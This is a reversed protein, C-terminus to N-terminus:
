LGFTKSAMFLSIDFVYILFRRTELFALVKDICRCGIGDLNRGKGLNLAL